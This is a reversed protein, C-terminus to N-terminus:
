WTKPPTAKDVFLARPTEIDNHKFYKFALVDTKLWLVIDLIVVSIDMTKVTELGKFM